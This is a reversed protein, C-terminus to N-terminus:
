WPPEKLEHEVQYHNKLLNSLEVHADVRVKIKHAPRQLKRVIKTKGLLLVQARRLFDKQCDIQQPILTECIVSEHTLWNICMSNWANLAIVFFLIIAVTLVQLVFLTEILAQGNKNRLILQGKFSTALIKTRM